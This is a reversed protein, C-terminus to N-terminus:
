IWIRSASWAGICCETMNLIMFASTRQLMASMFYRVGMVLGKKQYEYIVQNAATATGVIDVLQKRSFCGKELLKEYHKM